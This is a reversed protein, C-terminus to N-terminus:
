RCHFWLRRGLTEVEFLNESGNKRGNLELRLFTTHPVWNWHNLVSSVSNITDCEWHGWRFRQQDIGDRSGNINIDRFLHALDTIHLKYRRSFSESTSLSPAFRLTTDQQLISEFWHKQLYQKQMMFNKLYKYPFRRKSFFNFTCTRWIVRIAYLPPTM